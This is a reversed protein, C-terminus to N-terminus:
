PSSFPDLAAIIEFVPATGAAWYRMPNVGGAAISAVQMEPTQPYWGTLRISADHGPAFFAPRLAALREQDPLAVDGARMPASTMEPPVSRGSAAALIVACVKDPHNAAVTRAVINGFANGLV